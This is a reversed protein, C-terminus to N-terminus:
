DRPTVAAWDLPTDIEFEYGFPHKLWADQALAARKESGSSCPALRADVTRNVIGNSSLVQM